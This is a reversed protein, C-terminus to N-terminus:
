TIEFKSLFVKLVALFDDTQEDMPHHRAQNFSALEANPILLAATKGENPPVTLDNEGVCVLTPQQIKGLDAETNQQAMSVLAEIAARHNVEVFDQQVRKALYANQHWPDTALKILYEKQLAPWIAESARLAAEGLPSRIVDSMVGNLGFKGTVVPCILVLAEALDPKAILAKLTILGGMSHAILVQPQKEACYELLSTVHDEIKPPPEPSPTKGFGMFELAHFTASKFHPHINEWMRGSAAWGHVLVVSKRGTGFSFSNLKSM